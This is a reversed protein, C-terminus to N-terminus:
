RAQLREVEVYGVPGVRTGRRLNLSALLGDVDRVGVSCGEVHLLFARSLDAGDPIPPPQPDQRSALLVEARRTVWMTAGPTYGRLMCDAVVLTAHSLEAVAIRQGTYATRYVQTWRVAYTGILIAILLLVLAPRSTHRVAVAGLLVLGPWFAIVYEWGAAHPPTRGIAYAVTACLLAFGTIGFTAAIVPRGLLARWLPRVWRPSTALLALVAVFALPKFMRDAEVELSIFDAFGMLWLRGRTAAAVQPGVANQANSLSLQEFFAPHIALVLVAAGIAAGAAAAVSRIRERFWWVVLVLLAGAFSFAFTPSTLLGLTGIVFLAVFLLPSTPRRLLRVVVWILLVVELMLLPYQRTFATSRILAPSLLFAGIALSALLPSRLADVLLSYLVLAALLVVVLSLVPGSWIPGLGTSRVVSLLWFYLPPHIDLDSVNQLVEGASTRDDVEMFRRVEAGSIWRGAPDGGDIVRTWDDLHGTAELQSIIEDHELGGRARVVDVVLVVHIAAFLVLLAYPAYRRVTSGARNKM